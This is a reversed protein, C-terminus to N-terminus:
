RSRVSALFLLVWALFALTVTLASWHRRTKPAVHLLYPGGICAAVLALFWILQPRKGNLHEDVTPGLVAGNTTERADLDCFLVRAM